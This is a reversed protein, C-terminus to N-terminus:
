SAAPPSRPARREVPWRSTTTPVGTAFRPRRSTSPHDPEEDVRQRQPYLQRPLRSRPDQSHSQPPAELDRGDPLATRAPPPSRAAATAASCRTRGPSTQSASCSAPAISQGPYLRPTPATRHGAFNSRVQKLFLADPDRPAEPVARGQELPSSPVSTPWWRRRSSADNSVVLFSSHPDGQQTLRFPVTPRPISRSPSPSDASLHRCSSNSSCAAGVGSATRDDIFVAASRRRVSRRAFWSAWWRRPCPTPGSVPDPDAHLAAELHHHRQERDELRAPGVHREVRAIRRFPQSVHDCSAFAGTTAPALADSRIAARGCQTHHPDVRVPRSRRCGVVGGSLM